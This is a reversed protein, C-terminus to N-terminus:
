YQKLIALTEKVLISIYSFSIRFAFALSRFSEGTALYRSIFYICKILNLYHDIQSTIINTM